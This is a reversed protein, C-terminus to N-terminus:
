HCVIILPHTGSIGIILVTPELGSDFNETAQRREQWNTREHHYGHEVGKPRNRNVSEEYGKLEHIATFLTFAKWKGGDGLDQVLRVLGRGTGVDSEVNLFSAVGTVNGHADFASINPKRLPNSRDLSISKIRIPGARLFSLIKEPGQLTHFDWSLSLQDRWYSDKLFIQNIVADSPEQISKNFRLVWGNAVDDANVEAVSETKPFTAIPLKYSGPEARDYSPVQVEATAM